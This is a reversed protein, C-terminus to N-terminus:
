KCDCAGEGCNCNNDSNSGNDGCNCSNDSNSGNDSCNCASDGCNSDASCNCDGEGCSHCGCGCGTAPHLEEPTAERVEEIEGDFRVTLGAFPHNFDMKVHEPTIELVRGKIPRGDATLMTIEADVEVGPALQGERQFIDRELDVIFEPNPDGFAAVPPLTVGFRDGATLGEMTSVLGPVVDHSVGFIMEDPRDEPTEFLLTNDADNYLKYSYAVYKGPMVKEKNEM